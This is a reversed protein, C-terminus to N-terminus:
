TPRTTDRLVLASSVTMRRIPLEEGEIAAILM